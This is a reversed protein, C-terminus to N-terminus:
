MLAFGNKDLAYVRSKSFTDGDMRGRLADPVETARMVVRRQRLLLWTSAAQSAIRWAVVARVLVSMTAFTSAGKETTTSSAIPPAPELPPSVDPRRSRIM